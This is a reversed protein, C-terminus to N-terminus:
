QYVAGSWWDVAAFICESITKARYMRQTRTASNTILIFEAGDALLPKIAQELFNTAGELTPFTLCLQRMGGAEYVSVHCSM